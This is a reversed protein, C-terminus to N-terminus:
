AYTWRVASAKQCAGKAHRQRQLPREVCDRSAGTALHNINYAWYRANRYSFHKNLWPPSSRANGLFVDYGEDYAVLAQSRQPGNAVWGVSTDMVGHM